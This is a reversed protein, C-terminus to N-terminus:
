LGAAKADSVAKYARELKGKSMAKVTGRGHLLAAYHMMKAGITDEIIGREAQIYTIAKALEKRTM